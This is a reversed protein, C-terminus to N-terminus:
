HLLWLHHLRPHLGLHNLWSHLLLHHLGLHHLSTHLWLHNLRPHLRLHHLWTHLGLHHLWTHLRLHHLWTHLQRHLLLHHLRLRLRLSHQLLHSKLSHQHILYRRTRAVLLAALFGSCDLAFSYDAAFVTPTALNYAILVPALLADFVSILACLLEHAGITLASCLTPCKKRIEELYGENNPEYEDYELCIHDNSIILFVTVIYHFIDNISM